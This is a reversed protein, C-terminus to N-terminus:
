RQVPPVRQFIRAPHVRLSIEHRRPETTFEGNPLTVHNRSYNADFSFHYDPRWGIAGSM